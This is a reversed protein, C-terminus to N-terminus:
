KMQESDCLFPIYNMNSNITNVRILNKKTYDREFLSSIDFVIELNENLHNEEFIRWIVKLTSKWNLDNRNWLLYPKYSSGIECM